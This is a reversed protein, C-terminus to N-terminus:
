ENVKALIDNVSLVFYEGDKTKMKRAEMASPERFM